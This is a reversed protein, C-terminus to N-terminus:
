ALLGSSVFIYGQASKVTTHLFIALTVKDNKEGRAQLVTLKAHRISQLGYLPEIGPV